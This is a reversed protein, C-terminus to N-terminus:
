RARQYVSACLSTGTIDNEQNLSKAIRDKLTCLHSPETMTPECCPNWCLWPNLWVNAAAEYRKQRRTECTQMEPYPESKSRAWGHRTHQVHYLGICRWSGSAVLVHLQHPHMVDVVCIVSMGCEGWYNGARAEVDYCAPEQHMLWSSRWRSLCMTCNNTLTKAEQQIFHLTVATKCPNVYSPAQLKWTTGNLFLWAFLMCPCKASMTNSNACVRHDHSNKMIDHIDQRSVWPLCVDGADSSKRKVTQLEALHCYRPYGTGLCMYQQKTDMATIVFWMDAYAHMQVYWSRQACSIAQKKSHDCHQQSWSPHSRSTICATTEAYVAGTTDSRRVSPICVPPAESKGNAKHWAPCWGFLAHLEATGAQLRSKRKFHVDSKILCFATLLWKVCLCFPYQGM